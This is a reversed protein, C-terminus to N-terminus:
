RGPRTFVVTGEVERLTPEGLAGEERLTADFTVLFRDGDRARVDTDMAIDTWGSTLGDKPTEGYGIDAPDGDFALPPADLEVDFPLSLVLQKVLKKGKEGNLVVLGEFVDVALQPGKVRFSKGDIRARLGDKPLPRPSGAVELLVGTDSAGVANSVEVDFFGDHTTPVRVVLDLSAPTAGEGASPQSSLLRAKRGNVRVVPKATGADAVRVTVQDGPAAVSTSVELVRPAVSTVVGAEVPPGADPGRPTVVLTWSRGAAPAKKGGPVKQVVATVTTDSWDVVGFRMPKGGGDPVATVRPRGGGDFGVGEVVVETGLTVDAPEVSTGARVVAGPALVLLLVLLRTSPRRLRPSRLM